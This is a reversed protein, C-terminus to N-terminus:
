YRSLTISLFLYFIITVFIINPFKLKERPRIYSPRKTTELEHLQLKTRTSSWSFERVHICRGNYVTRVYRYTYANVRDNEDVNAFMRQRKRNESSRVIQRIIKEFNSKTPKRNTFLKRSYSRTPGIVHKHRAPRLITFPVKARRAGEGSGVEGWQFWKESQNIDRM